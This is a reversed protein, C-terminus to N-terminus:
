LLNRSEFNAYQVSRSSLVASVLTDSSMDLSPLLQSDIEEQTAGRKIFPIARQPKEPLVGFDVPKNEEMGQGKGPLKFARLSPWLSPKTIRLPTSYGSAGQRYLSRFTILSVMIIAINTEICLWLILWTSDIIGNPLKCTTVRVICIVIMFISLCLAMGLIIKGKFSISVRSLLMVPLSIIVLDTFIDLATTAYLYNEERYMM